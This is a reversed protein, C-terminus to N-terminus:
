AFRTFTSGGFDNDFLDLRNTGSGGDASAFGTVRNGAMGLTDDLQGLSAFLNGHVVNYNVRVNDNDDGTTILLAHDNAPGVINNGYVDISDNGGTHLPREDATNVLLLPTQCRAITITDDILDPPPLQSPDSHLSHTQVDIMTASYCTDINISTHGSPTAVRIVGNAASNRIAIANVITDSTRIEIASGSTVGFMAVNANGLVSIAGRASAGGISSMGNFNSDTITLNGAIFVKYSEAVFLDFGGGSTVTCDGLSSVVGTRGFWVTDNGDGTEITLKGALYVNDIHLSNGGDGLDAVLDATVGQITTSGNVVGDVVGGNRSYVTIEGPNGTGLIEINDGAGDGIITLTGGSLSTTVAMLRRSECQEFSLRRRTGRRQTTRKRSWFM